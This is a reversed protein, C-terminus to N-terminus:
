KRFGECENRFRVINEWEFPNGAIVVKFIDPYKKVLDSWGNKVGREAAMIEKMDIENQLGQFRKLAQEEHWRKLESEFHSHFTM